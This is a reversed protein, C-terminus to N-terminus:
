LSATVLVGRPIVAITATTISLETPMHVPGSQDSEKVSVVKWGDWAGDYVALIGYGMMFCSADWALCAALLM